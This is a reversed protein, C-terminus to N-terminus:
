TEQIDLEQGVSELKKQLRAKKMRERNYVRYCDPCVKGNWLRGSGDVFRTSGSRVEPIKVIEM